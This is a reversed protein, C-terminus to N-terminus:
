KGKKAPAVAKKRPTKKKPAGTADPADETRVASASSVRVQLKRSKAPRFNKPERKRAPKRHAPATASPQEPKAPFNLSIVPGDGTENGTTIKVDLHLKEPVKFSKAPAPKQPEPM